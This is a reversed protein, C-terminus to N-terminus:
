YITWDSVGSPNGVFDAGGGLPGGTSSATAFASSTVDLFDPNLPDNQDVFVFLPDAHTSATGIMPPTGTGPSYGLFSGDGTLRLAYPGEGIMAVGDLIIQNNGSYSFVNFGRIDNLNNYATVQAPDDPNEPPPPPLAHDMKGGLISDRITVDCNTEPNFRFIHSKGASPHHRGGVLTSNEILISGVADGTVRIITNLTYISACDKMTWRVSGAGRDWLGQASNNTFNVNHITRENIAPGILDIAQNGHGTLVIRQGDSKMILDGALELGIRAHSVVSEGEIRTLRFINPDPNSNDYPNAMIICRPGRERADAAPHYDNRVHTVVSDKFLFEVGDGEYVPASDISPRGLVIGHGGFPVVNPDYAPNGPVLKLIDSVIGDTVLPADNGDNPALLVNDLELYLNNNQNEIGMRLRDRPAIGKQPIIALNHLKVTGTSLGRALNIVIGGANFTEDPLAGSAPYHAFGGAPNSVLSLVPRDPATGIIEVPNTITYIEEYVASDTIEIVDPDVALADSVTNFITTGNATDTKNVTVTQASLLAGPALLATIGVLHLLKM